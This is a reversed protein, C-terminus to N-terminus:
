LSNALGTFNKIWEIYDLNSQIADTRRSPELFDDIIQARVLYEASIELLPFEKLFMDKTAQQHGAKANGAKMTAMKQLRQDYSTRQKFETISYHGINNFQWAAIDMRGLQEASEGALALNNVVTEIDNSDLAKNADSKAKKYINWLESISKRSQEKLVPSTQATAVTDIQAEVSDMAVEVSDIKQAIEEIKTDVRKQTQETDSGCSVLLVM